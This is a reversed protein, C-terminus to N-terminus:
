AAAIAQFLQWLLFANSAGCLLFILWSYRGRFFCCALVICFVNFGHLLWVGGNGLRSWGELLFYMLGMPMVLFWQWENGPQWLAAHPLYLALLNGAIIAAPHRWWRIRNTDTPDSASTM